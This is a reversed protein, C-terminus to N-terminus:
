YNKPRRFAFSTYGYFNLYKSNKKVNSKNSLKIWYVNKMSQGESTNIEKIGVLIKNIKEQFEMNKSKAKIQRSNEKDSFPSYIPFYYEFECDFDVEYHKNKFLDNFIIFKENLLSKDFKKENIMIYDLNKRIKYVSDLNINIAQKFHPYNELENYLEKNISNNFKFTNKIDTNEYNFSSQIIQNLLKKCKDNEFHNIFPIFGFNSYPKIVTILFTKDKIIFGRESLKLTASDVIYYGKLIELLKDIFALNESSDEFRIQFFHNGM